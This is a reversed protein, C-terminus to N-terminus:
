VTSIGSEKTRSGLQTCPFIEWKTEGGIRNDAQRFSLIIGKSRKLMRVRLTISYTHNEYYNFFLQEGICPFRFIKKWNEGRNVGLGIKNCIKM